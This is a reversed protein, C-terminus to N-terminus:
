FPASSVSTPGDVAVTPWDVSVLAADVPKLMSTDTLIQAQNTYTHTHVM